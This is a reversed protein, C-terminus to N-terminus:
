ANPNVAASKIQKLNESTMVSAVRGLASGVGIENKYDRTEDTYYIGEVMEGNGPDYGQVAYALAECGMVTATAVAVSPSSTSAVTPVANSKFLAVGNWYGFPTVGGYPPKKGQFLWNEIGRIDAYQQYNRWADTVTLYHAQRTHLFAIYKGEEGGVPIANDEELSEKALDIDTLDLVDTSDIDGLNEADGAWIIDPATESFGGGTGVAATLLTIDIHRAWFRSLLMVARERMAFTIEKAALFEWSIGKRRLVPALNLVESDINDENGQLRGTVATNSIDLTRIVNITAGPQDLLDVKKIIPMLSGEEGMFKAAKCADMAKQYIRKSTNTPIVGSTWDSAGMANMINETTM